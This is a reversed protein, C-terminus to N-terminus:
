NKARILMAHECAGATQYTNRAIFSKIAIYPKEKTMTGYLSHMGDMSLGCVKAGVAGAPQKKAAGACSNARAEEGNQM